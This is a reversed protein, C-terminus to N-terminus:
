SRRSATRSARMDAACKLSCCLRSVISLWSDACRASISCWIVRRSTSTSCAASCRCRALLDAVGRGECGGNCGCTSLKVLCHASNCASLSSRSRRRRRALFNISLSFSRDSRNSSSFRSRLFRILSFRSCKLRIFLWLGIYAVGRFSKVVGERFDTGRKESLLLM